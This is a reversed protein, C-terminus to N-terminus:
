KKKHKEKEEKRLVEMIEDMEKVTIFDERVFFSVM